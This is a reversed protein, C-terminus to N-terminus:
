EKPGELAALRAEWSAPADILARRGEGAHDLRVILTEDPLLAAIREPWEIISIGSDFAEEIGLEFVDELRALRYLDFHWVAAPAAEYRIALGFTPSPADTEGTLAAIAARALASKGAGLPGVLGVVDGPRLASGLARGLAATAAEDPLEIAFRMARTM